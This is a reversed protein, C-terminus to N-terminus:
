GFSEIFRALDSPGSDYRLSYSSYFGRGLADRREEPYTQGADYQAETSVKAFDVHM